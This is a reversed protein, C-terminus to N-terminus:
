ECCVARHEKQLTEWLCLVKRPGQYHALIYDSECGANYFREDNIYHVEQDSKKFQDIWIGMAVDELKFLKLSREQHGSVIFKAIDRSIIYGPGHAWPPYSPHPWEETNIYWKSDKDRHPESEFSILGYLLGNVAKGKLSSLVEDIRVFADDDTKMIYKAPLIKTLGVFFRVAVDGSRVAEYQMWSRRLAMRREFNNGSSSVGVLMVIRKRSVSPAKLREVDRTLDKDESVPLGKALASLLDMAGAVEVRSVLWPELKERYAFSTEHRGNVAMHFGEPGVWLTATFPNGEVFPFSASGHANGRSVNMLVDSRPHSATLNEESTSRFIQENCLVLGDVKVRDASEHAPCREEQGWGAKSTWTNQVIFPEETMNDGPLSVNYHLVIPPTLEGSLQSGVLEIQFSGNRGDPIGVLTISSDEVLGCPIELVIGHNLAAQDPPSLFYPCNKDKTNSSNSFESAKEKLITSFLDKWAVSAEKVGEATEPLTDGRSLLTRMHAWVLLPKSEEESINKSAYLDSLGEVNILPAKEPLKSVKKVELQLSKLSGSDKKSSDNTPHNRFFISASQKQPQIGVLSYRLLLITALAVIVMGGSWKKM